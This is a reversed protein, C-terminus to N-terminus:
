THSSILPCSARVVGKNTDANFAARLEPSAIVISSEQWEHILADIMEWATTSSDILRFAETLEKIFEQLEDKDFLSLWGYPHEFGIEKGLLLSFAVTLAEFVAKSQTASKVLSTVEERRLLAFSQDNRTITVPRELAKDLVRGPQRNLETATILEDSYINGFNTLAM